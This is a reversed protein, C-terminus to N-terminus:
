FVYCLPAIQNRLYCYWSMEACRFLKLDLCSIFIDYFNLHLFFNCVWFDNRKMTFTIDIFKFFTLRIRCIWVSWTKWTKITSELIFTKKKFFINKTRQKKISHHLKKITRRTIKSCQILHPLVFLLLFIHQKIKLKSRIGENFIQDLIEVTLCLCDIGLHM